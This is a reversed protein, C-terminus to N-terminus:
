VLTLSCSFLVAFHERTNIEVKLRLPVVPPGESEIRYTLTVSREKQKRRPEGLFENLVDQLVDLTGGIPGPVIQVLDIDESYRRASNFYLKHLATGGQHGTTQRNFYGRVHVGPGQQHDPGTGGPCRFDLSSGTAMGRYRGEPDYIGRLM